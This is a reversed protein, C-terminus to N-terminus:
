QLWLAYPNSCPYCAGPHNPPAHSVEPRVPQGWIAFRPDSTDRALQVAVDEDPHPWRRSCVGASTWPCANRPLCLPGSEDRAFTPPNPFGFTGYTTYPSQM